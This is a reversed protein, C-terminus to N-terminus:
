IVTSIFMFLVNIFSIYWTLKYNFQYSGSILVRYDAVIMQDSVMIVNDDDTDCDNECTKNKKDCKANPCGCRDHFPGLCAVYSIAHPLYTQDFSGGFINHLPGTSFVPVDEGSHTAWNRPVASSQIADKGTSPNRKTAYGPGNTYLLTTYPKNDVDSIMTDVDLIPNGRKTGYGGFAM